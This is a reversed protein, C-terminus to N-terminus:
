LEDGFVIIRTGFVLYAIFHGLVDVGHVDSSPLCKGMSFVRGVTASFDQVSGQHASAITRYQLLLGVRCDSHSNRSRNLMAM